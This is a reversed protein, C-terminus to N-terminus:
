QTILDRHSLALLTGRTRILTQETRSLNRLIWILVLISKGKQM